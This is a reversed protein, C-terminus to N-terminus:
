QIESFYSVTKGLNNAIYINSWDTVYVPPAPKNSAKVEALVAAEIEESSLRRAGSLIEKPLIVPPPESPPLPPPKIVSKTGAMSFPNIIGWDIALAM